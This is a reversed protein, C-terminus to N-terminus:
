IRRGFLAARKNVMRPKRDVYFPAVMMVLAEAALGFAAIKAASWAADYSATRITHSCDIWQENEQLEPCKVLKVQATYGGLPHPIVRWTVSANFM